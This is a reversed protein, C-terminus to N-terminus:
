EAQAATDILDVYHRLLVTHSADYNFRSSAYRAAARGVAEAFDHNLLCRIVGDALDKPHRSSVVIERGPLLGELGEFALPTGVVPLGHAMAQPVKFKVGAGTLLPAVVVHAAEYFPEIALVRGTVEVHADARALLGKTPGEGVIRLRAQPVEALILPWANDLFWLVGGSNEARSMAGVFLVEAGGSPGTVRQPLPVYPDLVFVERRVGADRLLQADKVSFVVVLDAQNLFLPELRAVRRRARLAAVKRLLDGSEARRRLSQSAVDHSHVVLPAQGAHGRVLSVLPLMQSFQLDCVAATALRRVIEPDDRFAKLVQRGPTLYAWRDRLFDIAALTRARQPIAVRHVDVGEPAAVQNEPSDPALVVVEFEAALRRCHALLAQGGAHPIGEYPVFPSLVVVTPRTM